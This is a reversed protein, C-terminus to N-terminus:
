SCLNITWICVRQPFAFSLKLRPAVDQLLKPASIVAELQQIDRFIHKIFFLFRLSNVHLWEDKWTPTRTFIHGRLGEALCPRVRAAAGRRSRLGSRGSRPLRTKEEAGLRLGSFRM